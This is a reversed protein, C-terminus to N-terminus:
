YIFHISLVKILPSIIFYLNIKNAIVQAKVKAPQLEDPLEVDEPDDSEDVSVDAADTTDDACTFANLLILFTLVLCVLLFPALPNPANLATKNGDDM